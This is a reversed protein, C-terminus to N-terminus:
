GVRNPGDHEVASHRPPGGVGPRLLHGALSPAYDPQDAHVLDHEVAAVAVHPGTVHRHQEPRAVVALRGRVVPGLGARRDAVLDDGAETVGANGSTIVAGVSEIVSSFEIGM